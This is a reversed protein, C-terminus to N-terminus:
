VQQELKEVLEMQKLSLSKGAKVQQGMSAAIDQARPQGALNRWLQRLRNLLRDDVAPKRDLAQEIISRQKVSLLGGGKLRDHFSSLLNDHEWGPIQTIRTLWEQTYAQRDAITAVEDYFAASRNYADLMREVGKRLSERWGSTRKFHSQGQDKRNLVQGTVTSALLMKMSADAYGVSKDRGTLSSHVEIAVSPSVRLWYVGATHPKREWRHPLSDLWQEFDERSIDVYTAM